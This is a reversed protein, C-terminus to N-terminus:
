VKQEVSDCEISKIIEGLMLFSLNTVTKPAM